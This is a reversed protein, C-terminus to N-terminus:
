VGPVAILRRTQRIQQIQEKHIENNIEYILILLIM